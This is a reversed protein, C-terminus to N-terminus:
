VYASSRCDMILNQTNFSVHLLCSKKQAVNPPNKHVKVKWKWQDCGPHPPNRGLTAHYWSTRPIIIERPVTWIMAWRTSHSKNSKLNSEIKCPEFPIFGCGSSENFLIAISYEQNKPFFLRLKAAEWTYKTVTIAASNRVKQNRVAQLLHNKGLFRWVLGPSHCMNSFSM